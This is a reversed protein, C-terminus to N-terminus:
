VSDLEGTQLGGIFADWQARGFALVSGSPNKSDRVWIFGDANGAAELCDGNVHCYSSKRWDKYLGDDFIRM